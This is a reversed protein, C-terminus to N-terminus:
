LSVGDQTATIRYDGNAPDAISTSFLSDGSLSALVTGGPGELVYDAAGGSNQALVAISGGTWLLTSGEDPSLLELSFNGVQIFLDATQTNGAANRVVASIQTIDGASVGYFSEISPSIVLQYLNGGLSTLAPQASNDGWSGIVNQWLAGDLTVGTHLYLAGPSGALPTGTADFVLIAAEDQEPYGAGVWSLQAKAVM